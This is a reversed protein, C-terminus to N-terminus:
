YEVTRGRVTSKESKRLVSSGHWLYARRPQRVGKIRAEICERAGARNSGRAGFPIKLRGAVFVVCAWPYGLAPASARSQYLRRPHTSSSIAFTSPLHPAHSLGLRGHCANLLEVMRYSDPPIPNSPPNPHFLDPPKQHSLNHTTIPQAPLLFVCAIYNSKM